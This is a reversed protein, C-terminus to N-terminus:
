HRIYRLAENVSHGMDHATKEMDALAPVNKYKESLYIHRLMSTSINVGFIRNLIKTLYSSTLYDGKKTTLLYENNGLLKVYRKLM